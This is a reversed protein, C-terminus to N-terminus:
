DHHEIRYNKLTTIFWQRSEIPKAENCKVEYAKGSFSSKTAANDIFSETDSISNHDILYKYKKQLHVSAEAASYWSGNRNFTCGSNELAKFLYQVELLTSQSVVKAFAGYSYSLLLAFLIKKM